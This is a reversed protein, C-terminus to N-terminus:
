VGATEAARAVVELAYDSATVGNRFAIYAFDLNLVDHGSETEVRALWDLWNDIAVTEAHLHSM